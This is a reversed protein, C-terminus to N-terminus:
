GLVEAQCTNIIDRLDFEELGPYPVTATDKALFGFVLGYMRTIGVKSKQPFYQLVTLHGSHELITVSTARALKTFWRTRVHSDLPNQLCVM